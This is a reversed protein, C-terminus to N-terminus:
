RSTVIFARDRAYIDSKAITAHVGCDDIVVVSVGGGGAGAEAGARSLLAAPEAAFVIAANSPVYRNTEVAITL